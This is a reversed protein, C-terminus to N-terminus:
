LVTPEDFYAMSSFRLVTFFLLQKLIVNLKQQFENAKFNGTMHLTKLIIYSLVVKGALETRALANSIQNSFLVAGNKFVMLSLM